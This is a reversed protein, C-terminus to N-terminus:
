TRSVGTERLRTGRRVRNVEGFSCGVEIAELNRQHKHIGFLARGPGLVERTACARASKKVASCPGCPCARAGNDNCAGCLCVFEGIRAKHSGKALL